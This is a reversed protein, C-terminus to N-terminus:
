RLFQSAPLGPGFHLCCLQCGEERGMHIALPVIGCPLVVCYKVNTGARQRTGLGYKLGCKVNLLLPHPLLCSSSCALEQKRWTREDTSTCKWFRTFWHINENSCYLRGKYRAGWPTLVYVSSGCNVSWWSLRLATKTLVRNSWKAKSRDIHKSLAMGPLWPDKFLLGESSARWPGVGPTISIKYTLKVQGLSAWIAPLANKRSTDRLSNGSSRQAQTLWHAQYLLNREGLYTLIRWAM